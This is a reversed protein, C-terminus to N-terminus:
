RFLKGDGAKTAPAFLGNMPGHYPLESTQTRPTTRAYSRPKVPAPSVRKPPKSTQKKPRVVTEAKVPASAIAPKREPPAVLLQVSAAASAASEIGLDAVTSPKASADDPQTASELEAPVAPQSAQPEDPLASTTESPITPKSPQPIDPLASTTEVPNTADRLQVAAPIVPQQLSSAASASADKTNPTSAPPPAAIEVNIAVSKPTDAGPAPLTILLPLLAALLVVHLLGAGLICVRLNIKDPPIVAASSCFKAPV